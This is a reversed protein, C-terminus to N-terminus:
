VKKMKKQLKARKKPSVSPGLTMSQHSEVSPSRLRIESQARKPLRSRPYQAHHRVCTPCELCASNCDQYKNLSSDGGSEFFGIMENCYLPPGPDYEGVGSAPQVRIALTGPAPQNANSSSNQSELKNELSAAELPKPADIPRTNVSPQSESSSHPLILQNMAEIYSDRGQVQTHNLLPALKVSGPPPISSDEKPIQSSQATEEVAFRGECGAPALMLPRLSGFESNLESPSEISRRLMRLDMDRMDISVEAAADRRTLNLRLQLLDYALFLTRLTLEPLAVANRLLTLGMALGDKFKSISKRHECDFGNLARCPAKGTRRLLSKARMALNEYTIILPLSCLQALSLILGVSHYTIRRAIMSLSQIPPSLDNPSDFAEPNSIHFHEYFRPIPQRSTGPPVRTMLSSSLDQEHGPLIALDAM